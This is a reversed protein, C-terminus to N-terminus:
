DALRVMCRVDIATKHDSGEPLYWEACCGRGDIRPDDTLEDFATAIRSVDTRFNSIFISIYKGSKMTYSECGHPVSEHEKLEAAAFYVIENDYLYSIGFYNRAADSLPLESLREQAENIGDPFSKAKVCFVYIDKKLDFIEM